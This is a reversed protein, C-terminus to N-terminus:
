FTQCVRNKGGQQPVLARITVKATIQCTIKVPMKDTKLDIDTKM